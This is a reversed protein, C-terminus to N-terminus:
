LLGKHYLSLRIRIVTFTLRCLLPRCLFDFNLLQIDFEVRRTFVVVRHVIVKNLILGDIFCWSSDWVFSPEFNMLTKFRSSVSARVGDVCIRKRM